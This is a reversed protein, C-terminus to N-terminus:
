KVFYEYKLVGISKGLEVCVLSNGWEAVKKSPANAVWHNSHLIDVKLALHHGRGVARLFVAIPHIVLDALATAADDVGRVGDAVVRHLHSELHVSDALVVVASQLPLHVHHLEESILFMVDTLDSRPLLVGSASYHLSFIAEATVHKPVKTCRPRLTWTMSSRSELM